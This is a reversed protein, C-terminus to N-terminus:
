QTVKKQLLRGLSMPYDSEVSSNLVGHTNEKETCVETEGRWAAEEARRREERKEM